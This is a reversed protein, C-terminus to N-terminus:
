NGGWKHPPHFSISICPKLWIEFVIQSFGIHKKGDARGM